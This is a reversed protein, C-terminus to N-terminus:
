MIYYFKVVVHDNGSGDDSGVISPIFSEWGVATISANTSGVEVPVSVVTLSTSFIIIFLSLLVRKTFTIM